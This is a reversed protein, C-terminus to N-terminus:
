LSPYSKQVMFKAINYRTLLVQFPHFAATLPLVWLVAQPKQCRQLLSFLM